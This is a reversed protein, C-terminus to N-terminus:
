PCVFYVISIAPIDRKRSNTQTGNLEITKIVHILLVKVHRPHSNSDSPLNYALITM